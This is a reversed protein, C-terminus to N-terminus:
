LVGGLREFVWFAGLGGIAHAAGRQWRWARLSPALTAILLGLLLAAGILTLQGLELGLNFGLLAEVVGDSPLGTDALAGAFGLGHLLGFALPLAWPRRAILGPPAGQSARLADVALWVLSVAIAIEVPAQPLTVVELAALALTVSHGLTFSTVAIILGAGRVLLLLGLVLLVHDFGFWLHTVGLWGYDLLVTAGGGSAPVTWTPAEATLLHAALGGDAFRAQAVAQATPGALGAVTLQAGALGGPACDWVRVSTQVDGQPSVTLAARGVQRCPANLQPRLQGPTHAKLSIRLTARVQGGAQEELLVSAPALPHAAAPSALTAVWLAAGIVTAVGRM